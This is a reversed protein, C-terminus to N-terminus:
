SNTVPFSINWHGKTQRKRNIVGQMEAHGHALHLPNPRRQRIVSGNALM